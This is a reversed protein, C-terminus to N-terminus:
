DHRNDKTKQQPQPKAFAAEIMGSLSVKELVGKATQWALWCLSANLVLLVGVIGAIPMTLSYLGAALGANILLWCCCALTFAALTALATVLISKRVLRAEAKVWQWKVFWEYQKAQFADTALEVITDLTPDTTDEAGSVESKETGDHEDFHTDSDSDVSMNNSASLM